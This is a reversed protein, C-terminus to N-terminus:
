PRTEPKTLPKGHTQQGPQTNKSRPRRQSGTHGQGTACARDPLDIRVAQRGVNPGQRVVAKFPPADRGRSFVLDDGIQGLGEGLRAKLGTALIAAPGLRDGQVTKGDAVDAGRERVVAFAPGQGLALLDDDRGATRGILYAEVVQREHEHAIAGRGGLPFPVVERVDVDAALDDDNQDIVGVILRGLEVGEVAPGHGIVTAPGVFVVLGGAPASGAHQHDM